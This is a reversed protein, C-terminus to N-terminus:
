ADTKVANEIEAQGANDVEAKQGAQGATDPTEGTAPEDIWRQIRDEVWEGQRKEGNPDTYWGLGWMKGHSWEGDYVGGDPWEFRGKGHKADEVYQGEYVLLGKPTNWVMRGQGHFKGQLFQGVYARGDAWSLEGQGQQLDGCWQGQYQVAPALWVGQGDRLGGRMQGTYTSGDVYVRTAEEYSDADAGSNSGKADGELPLVDTGGIEQGDVDAPSNSCPVKLTCRNGPKGSNSGICGECPKSTGSSAGM